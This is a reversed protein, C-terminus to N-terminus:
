GTATDKGNARGGISVLGDSAALTPRHMRRATNEVEPHRLKVRPQKGQVPYDKRLPYGEFEEYMLIRRLDPHDTFSIGYMDWVEREMYNAGSWLDSVTPVELKSEPIDMKVRLRHSNKLSLLHYVLEFRCEREDMWDVATIDLLLNFGLESDLKVLQFFERTHEPAIFVVADGLQIDTRLIQSELKSRLSSILSQAKEHSSPTNSAM